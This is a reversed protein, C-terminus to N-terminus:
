GRGRFFGKKVVPETLYQPRSKMLAAESVSGTWVQPDLGYKDALAIADYIHGLGCNYAAIVFKMREARDAIKSELSSDLKKILRAAALVNADPNRLSEPSIGMARATAPMLQMLGQAGAWSVVSNDFRSENYGIAALLQWDYGTIHAHRKFTEDYPSVVGNKVKLGYSTIVDEYLGSNKSIEFYKKYVTRLMESNDTKKNWRDLRAALSDCDNRVAWSSYQDLSVKMGIDLRPYYSKNLEAIDSDVITLPIEGHDVMEILDETILSDRSIPVIDIGGGLEQDLNQLRYHYKSDKEVYITKGVLQTVDSIRNGGAPQVLVQWTVEKHGAHKVLSNYEEIYPVPYAALDVTGEQVMKLLAQLSPAVQLDLVMDEDEAFRKVNEYDFGMTQGRYNFYSTPGYLTAAKLTDPVELKAEKEASANRKKSVHSCSTAVSLFLSAFIFFKFSSKKM